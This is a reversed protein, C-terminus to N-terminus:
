HRATIRSAKAWEEDQRVEIDADKLVRELTAGIVLIALDENSMILDKLDGGYGNISAMCDEEDDLNSLAIFTAKGGDSEYDEILKRVTEMHYEIEKQLKVQKDNM